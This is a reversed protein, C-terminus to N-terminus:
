VIISQIAIIPYVIYMIRYIYPKLHLGNKVIPGATWAHCTGSYFAVNGIFTVNAQCYSSADPYPVSVQFWGDM